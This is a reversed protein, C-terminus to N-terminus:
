PERGKAILQHRRNFLIIAASAAVNLSDVSPEMPISVLMDSREKVLRRVGKGENGFIIASKRDYDTDYYPEGSMDAAYIWYDHEKLFGQFQAMNGIRMIPIRLALGASVKIVAPTIEASSTSTIGIADIGAAVSTRIIAGLNHPDQIQDLLVLTSSYRSSTEEFFDTPDKYPFEKLEIVVGQHKKERSLNALKEPPAIETRYGAKKAEDILTKLQGDVNSQDTFLINKVKVGSVKLNLLERLVNRGHLYM